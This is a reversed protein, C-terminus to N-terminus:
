RKKDQTVASEDIIGIILADLPPAPGEFWAAAVSGTAVIVQEGDGCGLPDFAILCATSGVVTVEVLSGTPVESLKKTAWVPGIVTARIM